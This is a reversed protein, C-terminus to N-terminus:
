RFLAKEDHYAHQKHTKGQCGQALFLIPPYLLYVYKEANVAVLGPAPIGTPKHYVPKTGANLLRSPTSPVLVSKPMVPHLAKVKPVASPAVIATKTLKISMEQILSKLEAMSMSTEIKTAEPFRDTDTLVM